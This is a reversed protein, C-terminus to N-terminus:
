QSLNVMKKTDYGCSGLIEIAAGNAIGNIGADRATEDARVWLAQDIAIAMRIATRVQNRVWVELDPGAVPKQLVSTEMNQAGEDKMQKLLRDLEPDPKPENAFIRRSM